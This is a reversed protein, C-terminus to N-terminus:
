KVKEWWAKTNITEKVDVKEGIMPCIVSLNHKKSEDIVKMVPEDWDHFSLSFRCWHGPMLKEAKLDMSARVVEEPIMHQHRWYKSYQGCEMIALDFPGYTNGIDKFHNGYGSDGSYFVKINPTKVVFSGWLTKNSKLSRGSNHRAPTVIIEIGEGLVETEYWDKEVIVDQNYGWYRFHSGVGLTTVVKKIKPKLQKITDYDLHDYHDHSILLYDIDPIDEADYVNSGKYSKYYGKVPSASESLVPDILIKKGHIQLFYSSHGFWIMVNEGSKLTKLDTKISPLPSSPKIRKSKNFLFDNFKMSLTNNGNIQSATMLNQFKGGKYNPSNEIKELGEGTPNKGFQQLHM